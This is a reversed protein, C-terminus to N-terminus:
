WTIIHTQRSLEPCRPSRSRAFYSFRAVAIARTSDLKTDELQPEYRCERGDVKVPEPIWDPPVKRDVVIREGDHFRFTHDVFVTLASDMEVLHSSRQLEDLWRNARSVRDDLAPNNGAADDLMTDAEAVSLVVHRAVERDRRDKVILTLNPLGREGDHERVPFVVRSGDATVAPLGTTSL